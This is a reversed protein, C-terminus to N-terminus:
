ENIHSLGGDLDIDLNEEDEDEEVEDEFHELLEEWDVLDVSVFDRLFDPLQDVAEELTYRAAEVDERSQPDFWM